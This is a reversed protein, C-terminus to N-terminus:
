QGSQGPPTNTITRLFAFLGGILAVIIGMYRPPVAAIVAPDAFAALLAPFIVLAAAAYTRWGKLM